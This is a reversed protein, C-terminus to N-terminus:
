FRIASSLVFEKGFVYAADIQARPGLVIGVGATGRMEDTRPLLNYKATESANTEPDATGSFTVLHAPNTFFGARAFIPNGMMSYVNYEAGVHVETVDPTVFENGSLTTGSFVITTNKSLSSYNTRVADGAIVLKPIPRVSVGGGFHDPVNLAFSKPFDTAQVLPRNSGLAPNSNFGPNTQLNESSNFKPGKAYTFGVSVMDNPKFLAGFEGSVAMQTDHISTQNAILPSTSLDNLNGTRGPAPYTPGFIIGYRTADSDANLQNGAITVGVSLQNTVNYAVSGGFATATFDASGIIPRLASNTPSNPIARASLNFSEHYDLFRYVSFAVALKANVPVSVSLFSLANVTAANTTPQLTRFSDVAALRDIKLRTNKYEGYVQIRTLNTLGAPNTVAASADDALGIFSRGMANARAGPTSFNWQLAPFPTAEDNTQAAATAAMGATVMALVVVTRVLRITTM